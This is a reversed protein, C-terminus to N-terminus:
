KDGAPKATLLFTLLDKQQQATITKFLGEPMLSVGSAKMSAIQQKDLTVNQGTVQGLVLNTPSDSMIVGTVVDGNKLEVNYAIHDPNIAASPQTIDRYVSAYDRYVLNSLDPGIKGGVGDVQHCKFCGAQEGFFVSKGREWDGGAIEPIVRPGIAIAEASEPKAWPLLIRRLPFARPRPDEDTFWSIELDPKGSGTPLTIELPLLLPMPQTGVGVRLNLTIRFEHKSIQRTQPHLHIITYSTAHLSETVFRNTIAEAMVNLRARSKLIVTVIEPPYEYDLKAGVQVVPHLMSWLDLKARLTLVGPKELLAFLRQHEASAATFSKAVALDLHPLWGSWNSNAYKKGTGQWRAEVGTLNYQLDIATYQPFEHRESNGPREAETGNPIKVAYTVASTRPLTQLIITRNDPTIGASLIPVAYRPIKMQDAVVQYSPHVSEFRDGATVYRGEIVSAERTLNKFHAPNIPRDFILRTETPSAAYILAPQPQDAGTYSIKYLKGTGQPGTGWDPAGSHCSVLLDGQPTPIADVTLMTLRAILNNQAVYGTATKVLETRWIKGRSEGSVIADGRWWAPGFIKGSGAVPEDFHLGCTSQHQPAYDFVSPEDIVEPLYKPHRPPFGYHRGPQIQLLEDFPNGNPLWTAGEQDTCFLDGNANIALSVTFRLGTAIVERKKWDPSIKEITGRESHLNYESQGTDKNVRYAGMWNDCGLGFYINGSKDVTIGVADLSSGAKGVPAVWGGTVTELKSTGDGQDRLFIIRGQSAIYLGGPQGWAMGISAPIENHDNKFFYSVTDELGDGDTDKLQLVNGDYCLAFLRGDPAYAFSNINHLQLPLERVTFGPIMMQVPPPNSAIVLPSESLAPDARLSVVNMTSLIIALLFIRLNVM